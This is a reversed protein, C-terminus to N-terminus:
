QHLLISTIESYSLSELKEEMDSLRIGNKLIISEGSSFAMKIEAIESDSTNELRCTLHKYNQQLLGNM